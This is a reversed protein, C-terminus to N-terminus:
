LIISGGIFERLISNNPVPYLDDLKRFFKLFDLLRQAEAYSPDQPKIEQLLKECVNKLAGLEYLMHSNFFVDAQDTYPFIHKEEGTRVSPWAEITKAASYGRFQYDRVIRRLMRVDSVSIRNHDDINLQTLPSIYIRYKEAEDVGESMRPNLGHIGEIVIPEDLGVSAIREGFVKTGNQFDFRPLDVKEGKLLAEMQTNFLELDLADITEYDKKGEEDVPTETREVFYDDTGLYLPKAGLVRLQICLRKAFTTKGSSSPGAIMVFRKGTHIIDTAIEVIKREQVAEALQIVEKIRGNEIAENLDAACDIGIIRRWGSNEAFAQYLKKRVNLEPLAQPSKPRPYRLIFGNRYREVGFYQLYGTSPVMEHFCLETVGDFTYLLAQNLDPASKVLKLDNNARKEELFQEMEELNVVRREFPLDADVIRQIEATIKEAADADMEARILTYTGSSLSNPFRVQVHNGYLHQVARMYVFSLSAEYIRYASVDRIDLLELACAHDIAEQLSATRHDIRCAYFDLESYERYKRAITEATVAHDCIENYKRGDKLMVAVTFPHINM